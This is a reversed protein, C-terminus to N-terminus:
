GGQIALRQVGARLIARGLAWLALAWAAQVAVARLLAPGTLVGLWTEVIVDITYPFPTLYCLTQFWDPYFRIPMLMGSLVWSAIFVFRLIGGADPTWFASLSAAFRWGFSVLWGLTATLLVALWAGPGDPWSLDFFLAFALLITLSRWLLAALARGADRSLWHAPFDMPKLLDGAIEGSHITRMVDPWGFVSLPALVAQTLAAFTIADQLSYGVVSTRAGYFAVLVAARLLGFFFNTALGALAAARYSLHRQFARKATEVYMRM